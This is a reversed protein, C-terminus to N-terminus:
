AAERDKRSRKAGKVEEPIARLVPSAPSRRARIKTWLAAALVLVAPALWIALIILFVRM